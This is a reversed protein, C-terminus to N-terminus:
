TRRFDTLEMEDFDIGDDRAEEVTPVDEERDTPPRDSAEPRGATPTFVKAFPSPGPAPAAEPEMELTLRRFDEPGWGDDFDFDNDDRPELDVTHPNGNLCAEDMHTAVEKWAYQQVTMYARVVLGKEPECVPVGLDVFDGERLVPREVAEYSTNTQHSRSSQDNLSFGESTSSSSHVGQRNSSSQTSWSVGMTQGVSDGESYKNIVRLNTGFYDKAWKAATGTMFLFIKTKFMNFFENAKHDGLLDKIGSDDGIGAIISGGKSRSSNALKILHQGFPSNRVEDLFFSTRSAGNYPISPGALLRRTVLGFVWSQFPALADPYDESHGLVLVGEGKMWDERITIRREKPIKSLAAALPGLAFIMPEISFFVGKGQNRAGFVTELMGAGRATKKLVARLNKETTCANVVDMLDWSNTAFKQFTRVVQYVVSRANATFTFNHGRPDADPQIIDRAFQMAAPASNIERPWDIGHSRADVPDLYYIPVPQGRVDKLAAVEPTELYRRAERKYDWIFIRHGYGGGVHWLMDKLIQTICTTKGADTTGTVLIHGYAFKHPIAKSLVNVHLPDIQRIGDCWADVDRPRRLATGRRVLSQNDEPIPPVSDRGRAPPGSNDSSNEDWDRAPGSPRPM